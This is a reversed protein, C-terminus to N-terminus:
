NSNNSPVSWDHIVFFPNMVDWFIAFKMIVTASLRSIPYVATPDVLKGQRDAFLLRQTQHLTIQLQVTASLKPGRRTEPWKCGVSSERGGGVGEKHM